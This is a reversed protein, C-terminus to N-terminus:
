LHKSYNSDIHYLIASSDPWPQYRPDATVTSHLGALLSANRPPFSMVTSSVELVQSITLTAILSHIQSFMKTFIRSYVRSRKHSGFKFCGIRLRATTVFMFECKMMNSSEEVHKIGPTNKRTRWVNHRLPFSRKSNQIRRFLLLNCLVNQVQAM